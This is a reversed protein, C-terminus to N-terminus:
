SGLPQDLPPEPLFSKFGASEPSVFSGDRGLKGPGYYHVPTTRSVLIDESAM